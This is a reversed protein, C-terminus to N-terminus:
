KAEVNKGGGLHLLKGFAHSQWGVDKCLQPLTVIDPMKQHLPIDNGVIVTQEARLGTMMSNRSPNCVPYQGYAREFTTGRARLRNLNPTKVVEKTFGGGHHASRQAERVFRAASLSRFPHCPVALARQFSTYRTKKSTNGTTSCRYKPWRAKFDVRLLRLM